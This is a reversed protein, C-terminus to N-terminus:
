SPLESTVSSAISCLRGTTAVRAPPRGSLTRGPRVPHSVSGDDGPARAAVSCCATASRSRHGAYPTAPRRQEVLLEVPAHQLPAEARQVAPKVPASVALGHCVILRTTRSHGRAPRVITARRRLGDLWDAVLARRRAAMVHERALAHAEETTLERGDRVFEAAHERYYNELEDGTPELSGAFRQETYAQIRCITACGGSCGPGISAWGRCRRTRRM